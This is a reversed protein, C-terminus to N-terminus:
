WAPEIGIGAQKHRIEIEVHLGPRLVPVRRELWRALTGAPRCLYGDSYEPQYRAKVTNFDASLLCFYHIVERLSYEKWHHGHTPTHLIELTSLGAGFHQRLRRLDWARGRLAYYNPTSILIRGGPRLVRYVERWLAVPNFTIHELIETFLVLAVSDSAIGAFAAQPQELNSCSILDIDLQRALEIVSARQLTSPLDLATVRYGDLAYLAAQHLWHAGIDLVPLSEKEATWGAEFEHKTLAFRAYHHRLYDADTGGCQTALQEIQQLSPTM